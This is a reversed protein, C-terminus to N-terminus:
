NGRINYFHCSGTCGTVFFILLIAFMKTETFHDYSYRAVYCKWTSRKITWRECTLNSPNMWDRSRVTTTIRTKTSVETMGTLVRCMGTFCRRNNTCWRRRKRRCTTTWPTGRASLQSPTLRLATAPVETNPIWTTMRERMPWDTTTKVIKTTISEMPITTVLVARMLVNRFVFSFM